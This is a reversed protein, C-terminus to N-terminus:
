ESDPQDPPKPPALPPSVQTLSMLAITQSQYECCIKGTVPFHLIYGLFAFDLQAELPINMPWDVQEPPTLWVWRGVHPFLGPTTLPRWRPVLSLEEQPAAEEPESETPKSPATVSVPPEARAMPLPARGPSAPVMPDKEAVDLMELSVLNGSEIMSTLYEHCEQVARCLMGPPTASHITYRQLTM